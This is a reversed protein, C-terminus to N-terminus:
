SRTLGPFYGFNGMAPQYVLAGLRGAVPVPPMRSVAANGANLTAPIGAGFTPPTAPYPGVPAGQQAVPSQPFSPLAPRAFNLPAGTGPTTGPPIPPTFTVPPHGQTTGTSPPQVNAGGVMTMGPVPTGWNAISGPSGGTPMFLAPDVPQTQLTGSPAAGGLATPMNRQWWSASPPVTAGQGTTDTWGSDSGTNNGANKLAQAYMMRQMYPTLGAALGGAIAGFAEGAM